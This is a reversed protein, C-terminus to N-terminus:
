KDLIPVLAHNLGWIMNCGDNGGCSMFLSDCTYLLAFGDNGAFADMDEMEPLKIM